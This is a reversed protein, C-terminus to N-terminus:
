RSPDRFKVNVPRPAAKIFESIKKLSIGDTVNGSLSTYINMVYSLILYFLFFYFTFSLCSLITQYCPDFISLFGLLISYFWIFDCWIFDFDIIDISEFCIIKLKVSLMLWFIFAIKLQLFWQLLDWSKVVVFFNFFILTSM